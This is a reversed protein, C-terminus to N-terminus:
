GETLGGPLLQQVGVTNSFCEHLPFFVVTAGGARLRMNVQLIHFTIRTKSIMPTFSYACSGLPQLIRCSSGVRRGSARAAKGMGLKKQGSEM